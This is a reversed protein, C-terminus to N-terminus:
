ISFQCRSQIENLNTMLDNNHSMIHKTLKSQELEFNKKEYSILVKLLSEFISIFVLSRFDNLKGIHYSEYWIFRMRWSRHGFHDLYYQLYDIWTSKEQVSGKLHYMENFRWYFWVDSVFRCCHDSGQKRIIRSDIKRMPHPSWVNPTGTEQRGSILGM